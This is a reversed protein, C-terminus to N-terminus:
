RERVAPSSGSRAARDDISSRRVYECAMTSEPKPTPM